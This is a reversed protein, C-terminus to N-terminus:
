DSKDSSTENARLMEEFDDQLTPLLFDISFPITYTTVEGCGSCEHKAKDNIGYKFHKHFARILGMDKGTFNEEIYKLKQALPIVKGIDTTLAIKVDDRSVKKNLSCYNDAIEEDNVTILRLKIKKGSKLTMEYGDVYKDSLLDVKTDTLDVEVKDKTTCVPCTVEFSKKSSYNNAWIWMLIYDRDYISLKKFISADKLLSKLITNLVKYYNKNTAASLIKEDRVLIDRYEITEPYGLMGKSPLDVNYYKTGLDEKEESAQETDQKDEEFM